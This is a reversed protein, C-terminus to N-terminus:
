FFRCVIIPLFVAPIYNMVKINTIKLMNLGLAFILLSGVCTMEGIVNGYNIFPQIYQALLAIAGQYVFIFAASFIVGVGLSSAFFIAAIGDLTAKTYLTTHNGRLGSDLSGVIAMAGVCFLLSATVFGKAISGDGNKSVLAELKDGLWKIRSDLDLLTGIIAGISISIITILINQGEFCGSIGIYVVVLGLGLMVADGLKKDFMKGFVLGVISGAVVALTNVITGLM